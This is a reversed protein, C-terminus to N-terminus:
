TPLNHGVTWGVLLFFCTEPLSQQEHHDSLAPTQLHGCLLWLVHYGPSFFDIIAFLDTFVSPQCLCQLYHCQWWNYHYIFIQSYLCNNILDRPLLCKTLFFNQPFGCLHIHHHDSEWHCEAHILSVSLYFDSGETSPWRDIGASYLNSHYNKM